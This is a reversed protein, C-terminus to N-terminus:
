EHDKEKIVISFRYFANKLLRVVEEHPLDIDNSVIQTAIGHSYIWVDRFLNRAQERDLGAVKGANTISARNWDADLIEEISKGRCTKNMFLVNFINREKRAFEVYAIGQTLLRNEESINKEMYSDYYNDLQIKVDKRLEEMNRYIRFLPKTSCHLYSALSRANVLEMGGRRVLEVAAHMVNERDITPRPPMIIVKGLYCTNRL